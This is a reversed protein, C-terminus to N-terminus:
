GWGLARVMTQKGKVKVVFREVWAMTGGPKYAHEWLYVVIM